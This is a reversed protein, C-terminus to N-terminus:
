VDRVDAGRDIMTYSPFGDTAQLVRLLKRAAPNTGCRKCGAAISRQARHLRPHLLVMGQRFRPRAPESFNKTKEPPRAPGAASQPWMGRRPGRRKSPGPGSAAQTATPLPAPRVRRRRQRTARRHVRCRAVAGRRVVSASHRQGYGRPKCEARTERECCVAHGAERALACARAATGRRLRSRDLRAATSPACRRAFTPDVRRSPEWPM